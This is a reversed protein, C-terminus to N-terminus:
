RLQVDWLRSLRSKGDPGEIELVVVYQGPKAYRHRPHQEESKTGDGFDWSWREVKGHSRDRFAVLREEQDVVTFDWQAELPKRFRAELPMLRFAPLLTANGYMLRDRGLAWFGDKGRNANDYDIIIWGLGIIKDEWLLSEVSRHPGEASAHDYPTLWFELVYRGAEGSKFSFRSAANAQPFDKIWPAVGWAFAWSKGVAPTMIHYNQAHVGHLARQLQSSPLRPDGVARLREPPEAKWIERSSPDALVGGSADGDVIVEFTDNRIGPQSFEWYDDYAEYLFYLRNLGKVWGVKVRVDLDRPNPSPNKGDTDVLQDMGVVYSDPVLDWDSADGDIRPIQDAPFQFVQFTIEPRSLAQLSCCQFASLLIAQIWFSVRLPSM